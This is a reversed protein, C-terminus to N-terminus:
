PPFNVSLNTLQLAVNGNAKLNALTQVAIEVRQSTLVKQPKDILQRHLLSILNEVFEIAEERVKINSIYELKKDVKSNVFKQMEDNNLTQSKSNLIKIIQCRSVITPILSNLSDATLIYSLNKQPEELNKLFANLAPLTAQHIDRIIITTPSSLALSAFSGLTRVDEIKQLPFELIKAKLKKALEEGAQRCAPKETGVILYAHM